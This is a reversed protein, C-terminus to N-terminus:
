LPPLREAERTEYLRQTDVTYDRVIPVADRRRCLQMHFVMQAGSRFMTECSLLYFEWMRAFRESYM